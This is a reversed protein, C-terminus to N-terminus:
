TQFSLLFLRDRNSPEITELEDEDRENGITRAASTADTVKRSLGAATILKQCEQLRFMRKLKRFLGKFRVRAMGRPLIHLLYQRVFEAGPIPEYEIKDTAYNKSRFTV